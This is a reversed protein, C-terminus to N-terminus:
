NVEPLDYKERDAGTIKRYRVRQTVELIYGAKPALRDSVISITSGEDLSGGHQAEWRQVGKPSRPTGDPRVYPCTQRPTHGFRECVKPRADHIACKKEPTLFPCRLDRTIPLVQNSLLYHIEVVERQLDEQHEEWTEEPILVCWCCKGCGEMCQFTM